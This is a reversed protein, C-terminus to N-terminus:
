RQRFRQTLRTLPRFQCAASQIKLGPARSTQPFRLRVLVVDVGQQWAEHSCAAEPVGVVDGGDEMVADGLRGGSRFAGAAGALCWAQDGAEDGFGGAAHCELHSPCKCLTAAEHLGPQQM